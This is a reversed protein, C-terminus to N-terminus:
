TCVLEERTVRTGHFRGGVTSHINMVQSYNIAHVVWIKTMLIIDRNSWVIM